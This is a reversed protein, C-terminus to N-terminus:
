KEVKTYKIGDIEIFDEGKAFKHTASSFYSDEKEFSFVINKVEGASKIEYTGNVTHTKEVGLLSVLLTATVEKGSFKYTVSAKALSSLDWGSFLDAMVDSVSVEAKYEGSLTNGSCSALTFVCGCLLSLALVLSLVKKM